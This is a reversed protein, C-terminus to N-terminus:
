DYLDFVWVFFDEWLFSFVDILIGFKICICGYIVNLLIYYFDGVRIIKVEDGIIMEFEGSVM